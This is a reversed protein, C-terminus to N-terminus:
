TKSNSCWRVFTTVEYKDNRGLKCLARVDATLVGKSEELAACAKGLLRPLLDASGTQKAQSESMRDLPLPIYENSNWLGNMHWVICSSSSFTIIWRQVCQGPHHGGGLWNLHRTINQFWVWTKGFQNLVDVIGHPPKQFGNLFSACPRIVTSPYALIHLFPKTRVPM